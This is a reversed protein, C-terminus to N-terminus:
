TFSGFELVVPREAYAESLTFTAGELTKLTFDPAVAGEAPATRWFRELRPLRQQAQIPAAGALLYLLAGAGALLLASRKLTRM